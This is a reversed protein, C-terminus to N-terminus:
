HGDPLPWAARRWGSSRVAGLPGEVHKQGRGPRRSTTAWLLLVTCCRVAERAVVVPGHGVVEVVEVVKVAAEVVGVVVVVVAAVGVVVGVVVVGVVVAAVGVVAVVVSAL